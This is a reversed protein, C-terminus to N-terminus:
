VIIGSCILEIREKTFDRLGLWYRAEYVIAIQQEEDGLDNFVMSAAIANLYASLDKTIMTHGHQRARGIIRDILLELTTTM